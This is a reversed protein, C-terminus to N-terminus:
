SGLAVISKPYIRMGVWVLEILWGGGLRSVARVFRFPSKCVFWSFEWVSGLRSPIERVKEAVGVLWAPLKIIRADFSKLRNMGVIRMGRYLKSFKRYDQQYRKKLKSVYKMVYRFISEKSKIWVLKVFGRGWFRTVLQKPIYRVDPIVIHYHIVGRKQLEAWWFYYNFGFEKKMRDIFRRIADKSNSGDGKFTLTVFLCGRRIPTDLLWALWCRKLRKARNKSTDLWM